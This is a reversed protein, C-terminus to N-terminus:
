NYSGRFLDNAMMQFSRAVANMGVLVAKEPRAICVRLKGPHIRFIAIDRERRTVAPGYLNLSEPVVSQSRESGEPQQEAIVM